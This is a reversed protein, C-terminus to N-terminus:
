RGVVYLRLRAWRGGASIEVVTSGGEVGSRWRQISEGTRLKPAAEKRGRSRQGSTSIARM